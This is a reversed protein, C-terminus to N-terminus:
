QGFTGNTPDYNYIFNSTGDNFVYSLSNVKMWGRGNNYDDIPNMLVNGFCPTSPSCPVNAGSVSDLQVPYNGPPGSMVMDNAKYLQLGSQIASSVTDRSAREAETTVSTFSPFASIALIGLITVVLVLEVLTFGRNM